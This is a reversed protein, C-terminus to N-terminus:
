MDHTARQGYDLWRVPYGVAFAGDDVPATGMDTNATVFGKGLGQVLGDYHISGAFGGNGTGLFRGNWATAPVWVEHNISSGVSLTSHFTVRCFPPVEAGRSAGPNKFEGTVLEAKIMKGPGLDISNLAVCKEAPTQAVGSPSPDAASASLSL